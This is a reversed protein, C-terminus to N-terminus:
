KTETRQMREQVFRAVSARVADSKEREARRGARLEARQASTARELEARRKRREAFEADHEAQEAALRAAGARWRELALPTMVM